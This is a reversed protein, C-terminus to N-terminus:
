KLIDNLKLLFNRKYSKINVHNIHQKWTLKNDILIGLYKTYEKEKIEEGIIKISTKKSIKSSNKRFLIMNSNLVNLSLKNADLWYIVQKLEKNYIKELEEINKHMLFTSTDDAFLFFKIQNASNKIDNIYLLFFVPVWFVERRYVM